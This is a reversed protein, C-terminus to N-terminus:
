FYIETKNQKTKLRLCGRYVGVCEGRGDYKFSLVWLLVLSSLLTKAMHVVIYRRRMTAVVMPGHVKLDVM